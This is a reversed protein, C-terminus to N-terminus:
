AAPAVVTRQDAPTIARTIAEVLEALQIPKSAHDDFGLGLYRARGGSTVDATLAIVPVTRNPGAGARLLKLAEVGSMHPMQIDMLVLDFPREALQDLAERGSSAKGIRHGFASLLQELVLLNIANDDVILVDLAALDADASAVALPAPKAELDAATMPLEIHFRSGEGFTSEVWIRGGMLEVLQRAIALGLGTGGARRADSEEGQRFPDFLTPLHEAAIGPGTDIVTLRVLSAGEPATAEAKLTVSGAETFKLANGILNFLVQRLRLADMMVGRPVAGEVELRLAVGKEDARAGWFGVTHNLFQRLDEPRPTIELKGADIKSVDLIDNLISLLYEGSEVLTDLRGVQRPNTEDRRLLQAMGLVGNMPTRIEHSMTALFNSKAANARRAEERAEDAASREGVAQDRAQKLETVLASNARFAVRLADISRNQSRSSATLLVSLTLLGILIGVAHAGHFLVLVLAVSAMVPPAAYGYFVPRSLTGCHGALMCLIGVVVGFYLLEAPGGVLAMAIAPGLLAANRLACILAIRVFARAPDAPAAARLRAIHAQFAADVAGNTFFAILGIWPHGLLVASLLGLANFAIHTRLPMALGALTLQYADGEVSLSGDIRIRVDSDTSSM